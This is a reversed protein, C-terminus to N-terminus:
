VNIAPKLRYLEIRYSHKTLPSEIPSAFVLVKDMPTCSAPINEVIGKMSKGQNYFKVEDGISFDHVETNKIM